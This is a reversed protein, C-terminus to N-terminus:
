FQKSLIEDCEMMEITGITMHSGMVDLECM